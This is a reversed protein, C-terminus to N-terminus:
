IGKEHLPSDLIVKESDNTKYPSYPFLPCSDIECSATEGMGDCNFCKAKIAQQRTIDEGELYKILEKRGQRRPGSKASELLEKDRIM